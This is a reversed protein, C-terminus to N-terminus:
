NLLQAGTFHYLLLSFASLLLPPHRPRISIAPIVPIIVTYPTIVTKLQQFDLPATFPQWSSTQLASIVDIGHATITPMFALIFSFAMITLMAERHKRTAHELLQHIYQLANKFGIDGAHRAGKEMSELM